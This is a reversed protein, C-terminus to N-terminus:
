AGERRRKKFRYLLYAMSCLMLMLGAMTYPTTGAGGTEPLEYTQTNTFSATSGAATITGSVTAGDATTGGSSTVKFGDTTLEEVVWTTGIPIGKITLTEGHKLNVTQSRVTSDGSTVQPFNLSGDETTGDARTWVVSCTYAPNANSGSTLTIRFTYDAEQATTSGVVTKGITLSNVVTNTYPVTKTYDTAAYTSSTSAAKWVEKIEASITGDGAKSVVVKVVYVSNNKKSEAQTNETIRYYFTAPFSEIDNEFYPLTFYSTYAVESTVKVSTNLVTGGTVVTVDSITEGNEEAVNTITVGDTSETVTVQKLTFKFTREIGDYYYLSKKVRVKAVTGNEANKVAVAATESIGITGTASTAGQDTGDVSYSVTYGKASADTETVEFATGALIKSITATQGATIEVYSATVNGADDKDVTVTKTETGVTYTTGEPLPEGDLTVKFKFATTPTTRSYTSDVTKSISLSGLKATTIKNEIRFTSSGHSMDLIPSEVGSYAVGGVTMNEPTVATGSVTITGYQEAVTGELLERVYYKGWTEPIGVFEAKQGAKLAFIGNEGIRLIADNEPDSKETDLNGDSDYYETRLVNGSGDKITMAAVLGSDYRETVEIEQIMSGDVDYLSYAWGDPLFLSDDDADLVQFLFDPNGLAEVAETSDDDALEKEVALSNQRLLPFNFNLRCVSSGSGRETYYFNFSHTTYDMFTGKENLGDTSAGAAELIQKFTYTAYPTSSVDGTKIDLAYYYVKGNYFDIKGGVHRHIGSLDLFLVDDIYVWVDDDGTFYFEMPYDPIGDPEGSLKMTDDDSSLTDGNKNAVQSWTGTTNNGNDNGTLGDKPQYFNMKMEMGFFFNKEVDYDINYMTSLHDKGTLFKIDESPNDGAQTFYDTIADSASFKSWATSKSIGNIGYYEINDKYQNLMYYLQDRSSDFGAVYQSTQTYPYLQDLMYDVYNGMSTIKSVQTSTESNTIDNFPMFNGFPYVIFNPTIIENYLTFKNNSYQAHNWRSNFYYEGTTPDQIFLGDISTTNQKTAYTSKSFLYNLSASNAKLVPYGDSGLTRTLVDYATSTISDGISLGVPRNNVGYVYQNEVGDIEKYYYDMANINYTGSDSFFTIDTATTSKARKSGSYKLDTILSNGFDISDIHNRDVTGSTSDILSSKVYAGGNWQFGPYYSTSKSDNNWDTYSYKKNSYLYNINSGYDYLNLEIFESTHASQVVTPDDSEESIKKPFVENDFTITGYATGTYAGKGMSKYDINISVYIKTGNSWYTRSDLYWATAYFVFGNETDSPKLASKDSSDTVYNEIYLYGNSDTSVVVAEWGSGFTASGGVVSDYSGGYILVSEYTTSQSSYANVQWVALTDIVGTGASATYETVSWIYELELLKDANTVAAKQTDTLHDYYFYAKAVQQYTETLWAEEGEYDEAAEFEAIKADIEDASPMENILLIVYDINSQDAETLEEPLQGYGMIRSDTLDYTVRQVCNASNGEITTIQAASEETAETVTEVLGVHDAIGDGKWDFFILDGPVPTYDAAAAYQNVETLANVWLPCSAELPMGDVQAYHICFSVFMACWDGYHDGYWAGYRTYGRISGDEDVVYNKSSETYGLQSRAVTLVDETWVGSLETPITKEWDEVSEVDATKDSYCILSHTHEEKGCILEREETAETQAETSIQAYCADTHTHGETEEQTCTLEEEEREGLTCTLVQQEPTYCDGTHVHPENEKLTCVLPCGESVYCSTDHTHAQVAEKGCVLTSVEETYCSESHTHDASEELTCTLVAPETLYCADTHTHGETEELTCTLTFVEEGYCTEDHTHVSGEEITCVLEAEVTEYCDDTHTHAPLYCDSGHTHAEKEELQCILEPQQTEDPSETVSAYCADTHTHEELGCYATSEQTIAPLILAYTTCFVVVCGLVSVIKQWIKKRQHKKLYESTWIDEQQRM